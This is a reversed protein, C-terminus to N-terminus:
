RNSPRARKAELELLFAKASVGKSFGGLGGTKPLIRHCPVVIPLRNHRLVTGVARAARARDAKGALEGYTAVEGWAFKKLECLVRRSFPSYGRWDIPLGRFEVREGRLFRQIARSAKELLRAVPAPPKWPRDLTNGGTGWDLSFLGIETASLRFEGLSTRFRKTYLRPSSKM